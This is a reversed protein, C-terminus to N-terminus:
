GGGVFRIFHKNPRSRETRTCIYIRGVLSQHHRFLGCGSCFGDASLVHLVVNLNILLFPELFLASLRRAYPLIEDFQPALFTGRGRPDIM